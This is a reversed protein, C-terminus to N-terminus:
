GWARSRPGLEHRVSASRPLAEAVLPHPPAPQARCLLIRATPLALASLCVSGGFRPTLLATASGSGRRRRRGREPVTRVRAGQWSPPCHAAAHPPGVVWGTGTGARAALTHRCVGPFCLRARPSSNYNQETTALCHRTCVGFCRSCHPQISILPAPARRTSESPAGRM